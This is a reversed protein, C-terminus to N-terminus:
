LSSSPTYDDSPEADLHLEFTEDAVIKEDLELTLRWNGLKDEVPEWITDGLFFLWENKRVYVTGDFPPRRKGREDLIGPHDICYALEYNKAGRIEVILGFEGGVDARVRRTARRFRPLTKSDKDWDTYIGCSHLRVTIKRKAM